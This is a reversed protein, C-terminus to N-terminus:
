TNLLKDYYNAFYVKSETRPVNYNARHTEIYNSLFPNSDKLDEKRMEDLQDHFNLFHAFLDSGPKNLFGLEFKYEPYDKLIEGVQQKFDEPMNQVNMWIPFQMMQKSNKFRPFHQKLYQELIHLQNINYVSVTTHVKIFTSGPPRLDFLEDFWKLNEAIVNFDSGSRFYDNLHGYADISINLNLMRADLFLNRMYGSPITTGNTSLKIELNKIIDEDTLRKAFEEANPSLLPEGGLIFVEELASCDIDKHVTSKNYKLRELTHGYLEVEDDYWLHSHPSACGRCKLNCVNDFVVELARLKPTETIGFKDVSSQRMSRLGAAEEAPCQCGDVHQGNLMQQRMSNMQPGHFVQNFPKIDKFLVAKMFQGCPLVTGNAQISTYVFPLPCYAKPYTM